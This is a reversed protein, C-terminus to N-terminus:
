VKGGGVRYDQGLARGPDRRLGLRSVNGGVKM